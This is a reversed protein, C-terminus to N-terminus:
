AIRSLGKEIGALFPRWSDPVKQKLYLLDPLLHHPPPGPKKSLPMEAEEPTRSGKRQNCPVCAAVLNSWSRPGGHKLPIVHDLTLKNVPFEGGCYQCRNEDRLFIHYRTFSSGVHRRRTRVYSRIRVVSPLRFSLCVSRVLDEHTDIVEIKDALLMLIARQWNVIKIPEYSSNLVLVRREALALPATMSM